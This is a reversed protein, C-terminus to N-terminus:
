AYNQFILNQFYESIETKSKETFLQYLEESELIKLFCKRLIDDTGVATEKLIKAGEKLFKSQIGDGHIVSSRIDYANQITKYTSKRNEFDKSLFFAVTESLRHKLETTSVSFLSELVSCYLSVKTGIERTTRAARLFYFARNLRSVTSTLLVNDNVKENSNIHIVLVLKFLENTKSIEEKQFQTAERIGTSLSYSSNWFNSHVTKSIENEYILHALEFQVSNDKVLWLTQCYIESLILIKELNIYPKFEEFTIDYEFHNLLVLKNSSLFNHENLGVISQFDKDNLIEAYSDANNTIKLNFEPLVFEEINDETKLYYIAAISNTKLM